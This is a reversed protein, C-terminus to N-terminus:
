MIDPALAGCAAMPSNIRVAKTMRSNPSAIHGDAPEAADDIGVSNPHPEAGVARSFGGSIARTL